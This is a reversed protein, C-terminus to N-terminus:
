NVSDSILKIAHYFGKNIAIENQKKLLNPLNQKEAELIKLSNINELNNHFQDRIYTQKQRHHVILKRIRNLYNNYDSILFTKLQFYNENQSYNEGLKNIVKAFYVNNPRFDLKFCLNLLDGIRDWYNYLKEFCVSVYYYFRKDGLTQLYVPLSRGDPLTVQENLFNNIGLEKYLYINGLTFKIDPSISFILDDKILDFIGDQNLQTRINNCNNSIFELANQNDFKVLESDQLCILGEQNYIEGLKRHYEKIFEM